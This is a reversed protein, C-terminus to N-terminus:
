ATAEVEAEPIPATSADEAQRNLFWASVIVLLPLFRWLTRFLKFRTSLYGVIVTSALSM